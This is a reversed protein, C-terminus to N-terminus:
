LPRQHLLREFHGLAVLGTRGAQEAHMSLDDLTRDIPVTELASPRGAEDPRRVVGDLDMLPWPERSGRQAHCPRQVAARVILPQTTGPVTRLSLRSIRRRSPWPPM